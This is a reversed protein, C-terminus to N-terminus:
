SIGTGRVFQSYDPIQRQFLDRVLDHRGDFTGHDKNCSTSWSYLTSNASPGVEYNYRRGMSCVQSEIGRDSPSRTKVFGAGNLAAIFADYASQTNETQQTKVVRDDYGQLIEVRRMGNDITIRISRREENGVVPGRVTYQVAKGARAEDYLNVTKAAPGEQKKSGGTFINKLLNFGIVIVVVILVVTLIGFIYRGLDKM